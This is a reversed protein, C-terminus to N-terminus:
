RIPREPIHRYQRRTAAVIRAIEREIREAKAQKHSLHYGHPRPDCTLEASVGDLWQQEFKRVPSM